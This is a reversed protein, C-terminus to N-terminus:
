GTGSPGFPLWNLSNNSVFLYAQDDSFVLM